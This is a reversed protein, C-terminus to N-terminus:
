AVRAWSYRHHLGGVRNASVLQEDANRVLTPRKAPTDKSLSDHTRDDHYYQLYERILRRLHREGLVIVRDLLERRCSGVWREAVGNQWPSHFATKIPQVGMDQLLEIVEAPLTAVKIAHELNALSSEGRRM